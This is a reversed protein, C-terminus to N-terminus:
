AGILVGVTYLLGFVLHLGATRKVVPDLRSPTSYSAVDRWLRLAAFVSPFVLACEPPVVGLAILVAVALYAELLLSRYVLIAVERGFVVPLTRRGGRRDSILDRINNALLIAAVLGGIPLAALPVYAPFDRTQVAYAIVVILIGMFVFVVAESAPTYAIPRPGASYLYGGLASLCGLVLIPWGGVVILYIGLFLAVTYCLLAGVLVRRATVRGSVISGAIGVTGAVDLGRQADYFENFMNTAAQILLSGFLMAFLPGAAFSGDKFALATGFLVPVAAATLSFPRALRFWEAFVQQRTQNMTRGITSLTTEKQL